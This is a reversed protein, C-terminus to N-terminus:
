FTLNYIRLNKENLQVQEILYEHMFRKLLNEEKM